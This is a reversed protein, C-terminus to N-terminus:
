WRGPPRCPVRHEAHGPRGSARNGTRRERRDEGASRHSTRRGPWREDRAAARVADDNSQINKILLELTLPEM